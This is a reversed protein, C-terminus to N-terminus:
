KIIQELELSGQDILNAINTMHGSAREISDVDFNDIGLIMDVELGETEVYMQDFISDIKKFRYPVNPVTSLKYATNTLESLNTKVTDKWGADFFLTPDNGASTLETSLRGLTNAYNMLLPYANSAYEEESANVVQTQENIISQQTATQLYNRAERTATQQFILAEQTATSYQNKAISTSELSTATLIESALPTYTATPTVEPTSSPPPTITITALPKVANTKAIATQVAEESTQSSVVIILFIVVCLIIVIGVSGIIIWKKNKKNKQRIILPPPIPNQSISPPINSPISM